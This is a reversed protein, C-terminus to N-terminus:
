CCNVSFINSVVSEEAVPTPVSMSFTNFNLCLGIVKKETLSEDAWVMYLVKEM